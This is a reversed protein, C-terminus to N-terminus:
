QGKLKTDDTDYSQQVATQADRHVFDPQLDRSATDSKEIKPM